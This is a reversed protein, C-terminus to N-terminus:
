RPPPGQDPPGQDDPGYDDPPGQEDPGGQDPPGYDDPPGQDRPGAQEPPGGRDEDQDPGGGPGGDYGPGGGYGAGGPGGGYGPGGPGGGYGGSPQPAVPQWEGNCRQVYPYYGEPDRCYYWYASYDAGPVDYYTESVYDPYPYVPADYFFWGGNAWWWWGLRNHWRGHWWRGHTWMARERPTFRNVHWGLHGRFPNVRIAVHGHFGPPVRRFRDGRFNERVRGPGVRVTEHVNGNPGVRVHERVEGFAPTWAAIAGGVALGLALKKPDIQM